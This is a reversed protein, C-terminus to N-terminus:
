YGAAFIHEMSIKTTLYKKLFHHKLILTTFNCLVCNKHIWYVDIKNKLIGRLIKRGDMYLDELHDGEKPNGWWFATHKRKRGWV